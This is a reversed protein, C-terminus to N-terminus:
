ISSSYQLKSLTIEVVASKEEYFEEINRQHIENLCQNMEFLICIWEFLISNVILNLLKPHFKTSIIIMYFLLLTCMWQM